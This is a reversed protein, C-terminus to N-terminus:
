PVPALLVIKGAISGSELIRNAEAADLLPMRKAVIPKIKKQELLKFLVAIDELVPRKDKKYGASIGFFEAHKGNPLANLLFIKLFGLALGSFDPFGYEILRGGRRLMAFSKNIYAGGVGDFVFDVGEPEKTRVVEVINQSKYDIPHAGFRKVLDHKQVSATGYMTLEDLKGLDLLATGVGGSAGTVVIRDGRKVKARRKLAQYATTYNLILAVAEGPDLSRPVHVLHDQNLYLYESYGGYITLAGVLDGPKVKTVKTGVAEVTGVIEYGPVFPINPALPYYSYRMTVDTLGVGCAMVKIRAEEDQPPRLEYEVVQLVEPGGRKTLLVSKYKM